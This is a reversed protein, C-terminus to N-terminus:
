GSHGMLMMSCIHRSSQMIQCHTHTIDPNPAVVVCPRCRQILQHNKFGFYHLTLVLPLDISAWSHLPHWILSHIINMVITSTASKNLQHLNHIAPHNNFHNDDNSYTCSPAFTKSVPIITYAPHHKKQIILIIHCVCTALTICSIHVISM